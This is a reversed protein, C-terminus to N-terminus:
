EEGSCCGSNQSGPPLGPILRAELEKTKDTQHEELLLKAASPDGRGGSTACLIGSFLYKESRVSLQTATNKWGRHLWVLITAVFWSIDIVYLATFHYFFVFGLGDCRSDGASLCPGFSLLWRQVQVMNPQSARCSFSVEPPFGVLWYYKEDRAWIFIYRCIITHHNYTCYIYIYVYMEVWHWMMWWYWIMLRKHLWELELRVQNAVWEQFLGGWPWSHTSCISGPLPQSANSSLSSIFQASGLVM